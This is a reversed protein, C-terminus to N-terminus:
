QVEILRVLIIMKMSLGVLIEEVGVLAQPILRKPDNRLKTVLTLAELGFIM